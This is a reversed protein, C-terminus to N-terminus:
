GADRMPEPASWHMRPEPDVLILRPRFLPVIRGVLEILALAPAGRFFALSPRRATLEASLSRLEYPVDGFGDGDLDYGAYDDFENRRWEAATADGRGEVEVHTRSGRFSNDHFRNRDVVGHFVVANGGFRFANSAFRNFHDRYLPSTDLYVGVRNGVFWNGEVELNGSEKSGLGMGAAGAALALVNGRVALNRSYMVFIGVVNRVYRGGEVVNDHSYMFHTGYRGDEVVNDAFRNRPSYWVVLDRSHRMRNGVVRSDRVEWLRIGDGRLGLVKGPEGEIENGRLVVRNAREVLLGFLANRVRVGEVRVDDAHVAVAADLLDFRAGSGDVTVGLLASGGARLEVTTGAGGAAIVADRTGWLVLRREVLVPGAHVGDALCLAGGEPAADVASQLRGGPEIPRCDAPRSPRVAAAARPPGVGVASGLALGAALLQRAAPKM